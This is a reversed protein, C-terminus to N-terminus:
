PSRWRIRTVVFRFRGQEPGIAIPELDFAGARSRHVIDNLGPKWEAVFGVGQSALRQDIRNGVYAQHASPSVVGDLNVVTVGEPKFYGLAGSQLAGVTADHPLVSFVSLAAGRYGTTGDIGGRAPGRLIAWTGLVSLTGLVIAGAWGLYPKLGASLHESAKALLIGVLLTMAVRVPLLYRHFGWIAPLALVYFPVLALSGLLWVRIPLALRLALVGMGGVLVVCLTAGFIPHRVLSESLEPIHLFGFPAIYGAAWGAVRAFSIASGGERIVAAVATGSAPWPRGSQAVCFALWPGAIATASAVVLPLARPLKWVLLAGVLLVFGMTDIRSLLCAGLAAGLAVQHAKTPHELLPSICCAAVLTFLIALPAELGVLTERLAVPSLCWLAAVITPASQHGSKSALCTLFIAVLWDAMLLIGLAWLLAGEPSCGLWFAPVELLALLPQFGTTIEAGDTSPFGRTALSRAIALTYYADDVVFARDLTAADWALLAARLVAGAGLIWRTRRDAWPPFRFQM